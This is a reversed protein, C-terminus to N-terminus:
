SKSWGLFGLSRVFELVSIDVCGWDSGCGGGSLEVFVVCLLFM